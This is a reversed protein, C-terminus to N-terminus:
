GSAGRSGPPSAVAEHTGQRFTEAARRRGTWRGARHRADDNRGGKRWGVTRCALLRRPERSRDKEGGSLCLLVDTAVDVRMAWQPAREDAAVFQERHLGGLGGAGPEGQRVRVTSSARRLGGEFSAPKRTRSPSARWSGRRRGSRRWGPGRTWSRRAADREGDADAVGDVLRRGMPKAAPWRTRTQSLRAKRPSTLTARLCVGSRRSASRRPGRAAGDAAELLELGGLGGADGAELGRLM